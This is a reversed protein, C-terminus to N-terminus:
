EYGEDVTDIYDYEGVQAEWRERRYFCCNTCHYEREEWMYDGDFGHDIIEVFEMNHEECENEEDEYDYYTPPSITNPTNNLTEPIKITKFLQQTTM